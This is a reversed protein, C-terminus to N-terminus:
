AGFDKLIKKAVVELVENSPNKFSELLLKAEEIKDARTDPTNKVISMAKKYLSQLKSDDSFVVSDKPQAGNVESASATKKVNSTPQINDPQGIKNIEM